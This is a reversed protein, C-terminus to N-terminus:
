TPAMHSQWRVVGQRDISVHRDNLVQRGRPVHRGISVHCGNPRPTDHLTLSPVQHGRPIHHGISVHCGDLRFTDLPTLSPVQGDNPGQHGWPVHLCISIHRSDPRLM